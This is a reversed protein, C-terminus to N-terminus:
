RRDFTKHAKHAAQKQGSIKGDRHYGKSKSDLVASKLMEITEIMSPIPEYQLLTFFDKWASYPDRKGGQVVYIRKVLEVLYAAMESPPFGYTENLKNRWQLLAKMFNAQLMMLRLGTRSALFTDQLRRRAPIIFNNSRDKGLEALEPKERLTWMVNRTLLEEVLASCITAWDSGDEVVLPLVAVFEGLDPINKKNRSAKGTFFLAMKEQAKAKILPFMSSLKMLLHFLLCYGTFAKESAQLVARKSASSETLREWVYEDGPEISAGPIDCEKMMNVIMTNMLKPIVDLFGTPSTDCTLGIDALFRQLAPIARAFHHDDLGLPLFHTFSHGFIGQHVHELEFAEFSLMDFAEICLVKKVPGNWKLSANSSAEQQLRVGVGLVAERFSKRTFFCVLERRLIVNYRHVVDGVTHSARALNFLDQDSLYDFIILWAHDHLVHLDVEPVPPALSVDTSSLPSQVSVNGEAQVRMDLSGGVSKDIPKSGRRPEVAEESDSDNGSEESLDCVLGMGDRYIGKRIMATHYGCEDCAFDKFYSVLTWDFSLVGGHDQEIQPASFFTLLQLFLYKLLYAPTYGGMYDLSSQDHLRRLSLIDCCIFSNFINPHGLIPTQISVEPPYCPYSPSISVSLHLRLGCLPGELPTLLLCMLAMNSPHLHVHIGPLPERYLEKLDRQLRQMARPPLSAM